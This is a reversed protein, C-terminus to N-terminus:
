YMICEELFLSQSYLCNTISHLLSHYMSTLYLHIPNALFNLFFLSSFCSNLELQLVRGENLIRRLFLYIMSGQIVPKFLM